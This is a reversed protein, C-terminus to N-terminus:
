GLSGEPMADHMPAFGIWVPELLRGCGSLGQPGELLATRDRKEASGSRVVAHVGARQAIDTFLFQTKEAPSAAAILLIAVSAPRM